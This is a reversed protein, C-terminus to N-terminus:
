FGFVGKPLNGKLFVEFLLYALATSVFGLLTVTHKKLSAFSLFLFTIFLFSVILFGLYELLFFYALLAVFVRLVRMRSRWPFAHEEMEKKKEGKPIILFLSLVMLNAALLTPFFGPGPARLGGLSLGRGQWLIAVGLSFVVLGYIKEM